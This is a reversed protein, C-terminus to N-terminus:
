ERVHLQGTKGVGTTSSARMEGSYIWLEKITPNIDSINKGINEEILKMTAPSVNM